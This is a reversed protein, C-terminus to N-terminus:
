TLTIHAHMYAYIYTSRWSALLIYSTLLSMRCGSARTLSGSSHRPALIPPRNARTLQSGHVGQLAGEPEVTTLLLRLATASSESAVLNRLSNLNGNTAESHMSNIRATVGPDSAALLADARLQQVERNDSGAKPQSTNVNVNIAFPSAASPGGPTVSSAGLSAHPFAAHAAVHPATTLAASFLCSYLHNQHVTGAPGIAHIAPVTNYSTSAALCRELALAQLTPDARAASALHPPCTVDVSSRLLEAWEAPICRSQLAQTLFGLMSPHTPPTTVSPAANPATGNCLLPFPVDMPRRALPPDAPLTLSRRASQGVAAATHEEPASWKATDLRMGLSGLRMSNPWAKAHNAPSGMPNQSVVAANEPDVLQLVMSLEEADLQDAPLKASAPLAKVAAALVGSSSPFFYAIPRNPELTLSLRSALAAVSFRGTWSVASETASLTVVDNEVSDVHYPGTYCGQSVQMHDFIDIPMPGAITQGESFLNQGSRNDAPGPVEIQKQMCLPQWETVVYHVYSTFVKELMRASAVLADLEGQRTMGFSESESERLALLQCCQRANDGDDPEFALLTGVSKGEELKSQFVVIHSGEATARGPCSKDTVVMKGVVFCNIWKKVMKRLCKFPGRARPM